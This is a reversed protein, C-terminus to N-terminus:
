LCNELRPVVHCWCNLASKLDNTKEAQGCYRHHHDQSPCRAPPLAPTSKLRPHTQNTRVPRYDKAIISIYIYIHTYIYMCIYIYVDCIWHYEIYKQIQVHDSIIYISYMSIVASECGLMGNQVLCHFRRRARCISCASRPWSRRGHLFPSEVM